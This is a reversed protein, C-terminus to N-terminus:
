TRTSLFSPPGEMSQSCSLPWPTTILVGGLCNFTQGSSAVALARGTYQRPPGGSRRPALADVKELHGRQAIKSFGILSFSLSSIINTLFSLSLIRWAKLARCLGLRPSFFVLVGCPRNITQGSSALQTSQWHVASSPLGWKQSAHTKTREFPFEGHGTHLPVLVLFRRKVMLVKLSITAEIPAFTMSLKSSAWTKVRSCIHPANWPLPLCAASSKTRVSVSLLDLDLDLLRAKDKRGAEVPFPYRSPSLM